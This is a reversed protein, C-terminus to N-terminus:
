ARDKKSDLATFRRPKTKQRRRGCFYGAGFVLAAGLLVHTRLATRETGSVSLVVESRDHPNM